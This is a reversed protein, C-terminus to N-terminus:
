PQTKPWFSLYRSHPKGITEGITEGTTEGITKLPLGFTVVVTGERVSVTRVIM